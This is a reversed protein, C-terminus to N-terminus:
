LTATYAIIALGTAVALIPFLIFKVIWQLKGARPRHATTRRSPAKTQTAGTAKRKGSSTENTSKKKPVRRKEQRSRSPEPRRRGNAPGRDAPRDSGQWDAYRKSIRHNIKQQNKWTYPVHYESPLKRALLEFFDDIYKGASFDFYSQAFANGKDHLMGDVLCYDWRAYVELATTERRKYAAIDERSDDIFEASCLDNDMLWGLFFATHVASQEEALGFEKISDLHYKAKDYVVPRNPIAPKADIRRVEDPSMVTLMNLRTGAEDYQCHLSYDDYDYRDYNPFTDLVTSTAGEQHKSPYGLKYRIVQRSSGLRLGATEGQFEAFGEHGESYLFIASVVGNKLKAAVGSERFAWAETNDDIDTRIGQESLGLQGRFETLSKGLAAVPLMTM